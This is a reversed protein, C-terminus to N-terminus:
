QRQDGTRGERPTNEESHHCASPILGHLRNLYRANARLHDPTPGGVTDINLRSILRIMRNGSKRVCRCIVFVAPLVKGNGIKKPGRGNIGQRWHSVLSAVSKSPNLPNRGPNREECADLSERLNALIAPNREEPRVFRM